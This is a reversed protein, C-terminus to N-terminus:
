KTAVLITSSTFLFLDPIFRVPIKAQMEDLYSKLFIFNIGFLTTYVIFRDKCKNM